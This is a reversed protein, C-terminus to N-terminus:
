TIETGEQTTSQSELFDVYSDQERWKAILEEKNLADLQQDSLKVRREQKPSCPIVIAGNAAAAAAVVSTNGAATANSIVGAHPSRPSSPGASKTESSEEAM